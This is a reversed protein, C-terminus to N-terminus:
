DHPESSQGDKPDGAESNLSGVTESLSALESTGHRVAGPGPSPPAGPELVMQTNPDSRGVMVSTEPCPSMGTKADQSDANIGTMKASSGPHPSIGELWVKPRTLDNMLGLLSDESIEELNEDLPDFPCLMPGFPDNETM